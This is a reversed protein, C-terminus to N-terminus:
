RALPLRDAAVCQDPAPVLPPPLAVDGRPAPAHELREHRGEHEVLRAVRGPAEARVVRRVDGDLTAPGELLEAVRHPPERGARRWPGVAVALVAHPHEAREAVPRARDRRVRHREREADRGRLRRRLQSLEGGAVIEVALVAEVVGDVRARALHRVGVEREVLRHGEDRRRIVQLVAADAPAEGGVRDGRPRERHDALLAEEVSIALTANSCTSLTKGSPVRATASQVSRISSPSSTTTTPGDPQPLDVSSRSTAPSSSTLAPVTQMPSRTTFSSLGCSRLTAM